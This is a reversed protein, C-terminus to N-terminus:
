NKLNDLAKLLSDLAETKYRVEKERCICEVDSDGGRDDSHSGVSHSWNEIEKNRKIVGRVRELMDQKGLKRESQIFDQLCRFQWIDLQFDDDRNELWINFRREMKELENKGQSVYMDEFDKESIEPDDNQFEEKTQLNTM